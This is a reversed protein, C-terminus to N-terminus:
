KEGEAFATAPILGATRLIAKARQQSMRMMAPDESIRQLVPRIAVIEIATGDHQEEVLAKLDADVGLKDYRVDYNLKRGMEATTAISQFIQTLERISANESYNYSTSTDHSPDKYSLTKVGTMAVKAKSEFRGQFFNLKQAGDFVKRRTAETATWEVFYAAPSSGGNADAAPESHYTARGDSAITVSYRPPNQARWDLIFQVVPTGPKNPPEAQAPEQAPATLAILFLVSLLPFTRKMVPM